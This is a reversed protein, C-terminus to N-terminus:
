SNQSTLVIIDLSLVANLLGTMKLLNDCGRKAIVGVEITTGSCGM